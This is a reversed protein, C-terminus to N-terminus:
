LVQQVDDDRRQEPPSLEADHTVPAAVRRGPVPPVAPAAVAGSSEAPSREDPASRAATAVESSIRPTPERPEQLHHRTGTQTAPDNPLRRGERVGWSELQRRSAGLCPCGLWYVARHLLSEACLYVRACATFLDRSGEIVVDRERQVRPHSPAGDASRASARSGESARESERERDRAIQAAIVHNFHQSAAPRSPISSTPRPPIPSTPRSPTPSRPLSPQSATGSATRRIASQERQEREHLAAALVHNFHHSGQQRVM